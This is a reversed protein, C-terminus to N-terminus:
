AKLPQDPATEAVDDIFYDVIQKKSTLYKPIFVMSDGESARNYTVIRDKIAQLGPANRIYAEKGDLGSYVQKAFDILMNEISVPDNSVNEAWDGGQNKKQDTYGPNVKFKTQKTTPMSVPTTSSGSPGSVPKGHQMTNDLANPRDLLHNVVDGAVMLGASALSIKFIWGIVRSLLSSTAAKRPSLLDLLSSSSKSSRQGQKIRTEYDFRYQILALKLIRADRLLEHATKQKDLEEKAKAAEDETLPKDHDQFASAVIGDVQASSVQKGGGLLSKLKDWISGVIDTINIHFVNMALPLLWSIWGLGLAKMTVAIAGPGIIDILSGIKDDPRIHNGVYQTVKGILGSLLGGAQATKSLGHNDSLLTEVIM